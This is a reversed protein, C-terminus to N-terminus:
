AEVGLAMLDSDTLGLEKARIIARAKTGKLYLDKDVSSLMGIDVLYGAEDASIVGGLLARGVLRKIKDQDAYVPAPEPTQTIRTNKPMIIHKEARRVVDITPEIFKVDEEVPLLCYPYENIGDACELFWMAAQAAAQMASKRTAHFEDGSIKGNYFKNEDGYFYVWKHKSIQKGTSDYVVGRSDTIIFDISEGRVFSLADVLSAGVEMAQAISTHDTLRTAISGDGHVIGVRYTTISM